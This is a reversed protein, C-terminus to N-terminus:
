EAQDDSFQARMADVTETEESSEATSTIATVDMSYSGMVGLESIGIVEVTAPILVTTQDAIEVGSLDLTVQIDDSMLVDFAAAKGRVRVELDGYAYEFGEPAGTLKINSTVVRRTELGNIQVQVKATTLDEDQSSVGSPLEIAFQYTETTIIQGLDVTGLNIEDLADLVIEQGTVKITQPSVEYSADSETAGGGSVLTVTLPLEKECEVYFVASIASTELDIWDSHIENGEHDCLVVDLWGTWTDNLNTESLVVKAHDVSAVAREEGQIELQRQDLVFSDKDSFRNPALTGTFEPIIDITKSVMQVVTVDVASASRSVIRVPSASTSTVSSPLNVTCDLSYVGAQTISATPATIIINNRNLKTIVSRPGSVRINITQTEDLILLGQAELQDAGIYAVPINKITVSADPTQALDVYLWFAIAALISILIYFGRSSKFKDWM